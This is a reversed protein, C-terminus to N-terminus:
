AINKREVYSAINEILQGLIPIAKQTQIFLAALNEVAYEHAIENRLERLLLIDDASSVISIKELFRARDLFTPQDEKLAYLLSKAVKQTLIDTTRSFRATLAEFHELEEQTYSNKTGIDECQQQSHQLALFSQRVLAIHEHLSVTYPNIQSTSSM